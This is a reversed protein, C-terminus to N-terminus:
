MNEIKVKITCIEQETYINQGDCVSSSKDDHMIEILDNTYKIICQKEKNDLKDM